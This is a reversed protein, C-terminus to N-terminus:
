FRYSYSVSGDPKLSIQSRKDKTLYAAVGLGGGVFVVGIGAGIMRKARSNANDRRLIWESFTEDSDQSPNKTVAGYVIMSTGMAVTGISAIGMPSIKPDKCIGTLPILMLLFIMKKM